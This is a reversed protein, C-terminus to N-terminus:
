YRGWSVDETGYLSLSLQHFRNAKGQLRLKTISVCISEAPEDSMTTSILEVNDAIASMGENILAKVSNEDLAADPHNIAILLTVELKTTAM